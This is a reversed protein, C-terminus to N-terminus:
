RCTGPSNPALVPAGLESVRCLTSHWGIRSRWSVRAVAFCDALPSVSLVRSEGAVGAMVILSFAWGVDLSALLVTVQTYSLTIQLFIFHSLSLLNPKSRSCKSLGGSPLSKRLRLCETMRKVRFRVIQATCCRCCEAGSRTRPTSLRESGNVFVLARGSKSDAACRRASRQTHRPDHHCDTGLSLSGVDSHLDYQLVGEPM